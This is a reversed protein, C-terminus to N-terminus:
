YRSRVNGDMWKRANVDRAYFVEKGHLARLPNEICVLRAMARGLRTSIREFAAKMRPRRGNLDHSDTAVFSTWGVNLFHWAAKQPGSGFDGLLSACTVQLHASRNLWQILLDPQRALIPHREPHSIIGQIGMASLEILLPEIDIFIEHPLELLVHKGHDALTLVKDAEILRCIREDVRVDGGPVIRLPIGQSELAENLVAVQERIQAAENDDGFRGLQHPTAIVDTVGDNLLARCLALSDRLTAPGDDIGPLCHCHIDVYHEREAGGDNARGNRKLNDSINDMVSDAEQKDPVFRRGLLCWCSRL